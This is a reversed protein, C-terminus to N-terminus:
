ISPLGLKEALRLAQSASARLREDSFDVPEGLGILLVREAPRGDEPRLLFTEREKGKFGDAKARAGLAPGGEGAAALRPTTEEFAFFVLTDGRWKAAPVISIKPASM